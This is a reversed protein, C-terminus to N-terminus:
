SRKAVADAALVALDADGLGRAILTDMRAAIAPLAALPADGGRQTSEIMLRVDKRAMTLEFSAAFDGRAMKAGRGSLVGTPNFRQFLSLPADPPLDLARAMTMVDALGATMTIIMANGFLKYAAALDPREGIWWVDGTMHRLSPEARAFRAPAGAALMLGKAERAMQPSMFIPAHLLEVGRADCSAVRAATGTPSTTTHDVVLVGRPLAPLFAELVGDVSADDSLALHVRDVKAVAEAPTAAVAAGLPEMRKAKETTRNWCVVRDGRRLAAEIMGAGILGVGLFAITAM